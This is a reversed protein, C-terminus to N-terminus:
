CHFYLTLSPPCSRTHRVVSLFMDPRKLLYFSGCACLERSGEFRGCQRCALKNQAAVFLHRSGEISTVPKTGPLSLCAVACGANGPSQTPKSPSKLWMEQPYYTNTKCYSHRMRNSSAFVTSSFCLQIQSTRWSQPSLVSSGTLSSTAHTCVFSEASMERVTEGKARQAPTCCITHVHKHKTHKASVNM